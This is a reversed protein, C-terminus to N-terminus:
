PHPFIMRILATYDFLISFHIIHRHLPLQFIISVIELIPPFIQCNTHVTFKDFISYSGELLLFLVLHLPFFFLLLFSYLLIIPFKHILVKCFKRKISPPLQKLFTKNELDYLVLYFYTHVCFLNRGYFLM